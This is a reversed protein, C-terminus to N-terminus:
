RSLSVSFIFIIISHTRRTRILKKKNTQPTSNEAACAFQPHCHWHHRCCANIVKSLKAPLLSRLPSPPPASSVNIRWRSQVCIVCTFYQKTSNIWSIWKLEICNKLLRSFSTKTKGVDSRRAWTIVGTQSNLCFYDRRRRWRTYLHSYTSFMRWKRPRANRSPANANM